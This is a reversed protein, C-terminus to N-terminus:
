FIAKQSQFWPWVRKKRTPGNGLMRLKKAMEPSLFLLPVSKKPEPHKQIRRKWFCFRHPFLPTTIQCPFSDVCKHPKNTKSLVREKGIFFRKKYRLRTHVQPRYSNKKLHFNVHRFIVVSRTVSRMAPRRKGETRKGCRQRKSCGTGAKNIQYNTRQNDRQWGFCRRWAMWDDVAVM